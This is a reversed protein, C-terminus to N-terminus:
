VIYTGGITVGMIYMYLICGRIVGDVRPNDWVEGSLDSSAVTTVTPEGWFSASFSCSFDREKVSMQGKETESKQPNM